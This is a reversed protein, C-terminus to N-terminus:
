TQLFSERGTLPSAIFVVEPGPRPVYKDLSLAIESQAELEISFGVISPHPQSKQFTTRFLRVQGAVSVFAGGTHWDVSALCFLCAASSTLLSCELLCQQQIM